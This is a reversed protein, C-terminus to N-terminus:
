VGIDERGKVTPLVQQDAELYSFVSMIAHWTHFEIVSSHSKNHTNVRVSLPVVAMLHPLRPFLGCSHTQVCM